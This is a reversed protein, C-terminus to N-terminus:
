KNRSNGGNLCRRDVRPQRTGRGDHNAGRNVTAGDVYRRDTAHTQQADLYGSRGLRERAARALPTGADLGAAIEPADIGLLQVRGITMVDITDGDVLDLLVRFVRGLLGFDM